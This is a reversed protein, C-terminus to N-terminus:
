ALEAWVILCPGTAKMQLFESNRSPPDIEFEIVSPNRELPWCDEGYAITTGEGSVNLRLKRADHKRLALTFEEGTTAKSAARKGSALDFGDYFYPDDAENCAEIREKPLFDLRQRVIQAPNGAAVSYPPLDKTVVSNAGVVCGRGVTVGRLIVANIGFWCDSFIRVRKSEWGAQAEQVQIPLHPLADFTHTGSSVFNNPAFICRQGIAVEGYIRCGDQLTTRAGIRIHLGETSALHVGRSISVADSIEISGQSAVEIRSGEGISVAKGYRFIGANSVEVRLGTRLGPFRLFNFLWGLNPFFRALRLLSVM